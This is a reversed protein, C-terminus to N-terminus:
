NVEMKKIVTSLSKYDIRFMEPDFKKDKKEHLIGLKQAVQNCDFSDTLIKREKAENLKQCLEEHWALEALQEPSQAYIKHLELDSALGKEDLAFKGDQWNVLRKDKESLRLIGQSGGRSYENRSGALTGTCAAIWGARDIGTLEALKTIDLPKGTAIPKIPSNVRLLQDWTEIPQSVLEYAFSEDIGQGFHNHRTQFATVVFNLNNVLESAYKKRAEIAPENSWVHVKKM